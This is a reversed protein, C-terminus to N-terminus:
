EPKRNAAYGADPDRRVHHVTQRDHVHAPEDHDHHEIRCNRHQARRHSTGGARVHALLAGDYGFRQPSPALASPGSRPPSKSATTSSDAVSWRASLRINAIGSHSTPARAARWAGWKPM